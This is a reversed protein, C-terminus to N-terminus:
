KKEKAEERSLDTADDDYEVVAISAKNFVLRLKDPGTVITVIDDNISDVTGYLGSDMMVRDGVVLNKKRESMLKARKRQKRGSFWMFFMMGGLLLLMLVTSEMQSTGTTTTDATEALLTFNFLM